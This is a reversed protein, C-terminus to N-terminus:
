QNSLKFAVGWVFAIVIIVLLRTVETDNIALGLHNLTPTAVDRIWDKTQPIYIAVEDVLIRAALLSVLSAGVHSIGHSIM